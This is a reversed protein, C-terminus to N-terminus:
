HHMFSKIYLQLLIRNTGSAHVNSLWWVTSPCFASLLLAGTVLLNMSPVYVESVMAQGDGKNLAQRKGPELYIDFGMITWTSTDTHNNIVATSIAYFREMLIHQLQKTLSRLILRCEGALTRYFVWMSGNGIEECVKLLFAESPNLARISVSRQISWKVQAQAVLHVLLSTYDLLCCFEFNRSIYIHM